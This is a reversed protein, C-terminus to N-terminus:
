EGGEGTSDSVNIDVDNFEFITYAEGDRCDLVAAFECPMRVDLREAIFSLIDQNVDYGGLYNDACLRLNVKTTVVIELERIDEPTGIDKIYATEIEQLTKMKEGETQPNRVV